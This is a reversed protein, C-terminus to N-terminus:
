VAKKLRAKPPPDLARLAQDPVSSGLKEFHRRLAARLDAVSVARDASAARFAADLAIQRIEGGSLDFERAINRYPLDDNVPTQAPFINEWILQRLEATPRPFDVIHTLRRLFAQDMNKALNTTLIVIMGPPLSEIRQLLYSVEQNAYRDRADRTESRKGFLADAEDFLLVCDTDSAADFVRELNKETEGIYKDVVASLDIRYLNLGAESALAAAAITKGTGPPGTFLASLAGGGRARGFGWDGLVKHRHSIAATVDDLAARTPAAFVLDDLPRQSDIHQALPGFDVSRAARAADSLATDGGGHLRATQAIREIQDPGFAYAHALKDATEPSCAGLKAWHQAAVEPKPVEAERSLIPRTTARPRPGGVVVLPRDSPWRSLAAEVLAENDGLLMIGTPELRTLLELARAHGNPDATADKALVPALGYGELLRAGTATGLEANPGTVHILPAKGQGAPHHTGTLKDDEHASQVHELGNLASLLPVDLLHLAILDSALFSRARWGGPHPLPATTIAGIRALRGGPALAEAVDPLGEFVRLALDITPSRLTVADNLYAFVAEYRRDIQTTLGLLLVRGETASLNLTKCLKTLRPSLAYEAAADPWPPPRGQGALAADIQEDSVRMGHFEQASLARRMRMALVARSILADLWAFDSELEPPIRVVTM